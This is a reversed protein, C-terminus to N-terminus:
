RLHLRQHHPHAEHERLCDFYQSALERHALASTLDDAQYALRLEAEARAHYDAVEDISM